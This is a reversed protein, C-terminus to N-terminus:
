RAQLRTTCRIPDDIDCIVSGKNIKNMEVGHVVLTVHEGSLAFEARGNDDGAEVVKVLGKEGAPM